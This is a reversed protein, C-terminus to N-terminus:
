RIVFIHRKIPLFLNKRLTVAKKSNELDSLRKPYNKQIKNTIPVPIGNAKGM